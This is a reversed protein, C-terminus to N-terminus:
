TSEQLNRKSFFKRLSGSVRTPSKMRIPADTTTQAKEQLHQLPPPAPIFKYDKAPVAPPREPRTIDLGSRETQKDYRTKDPKLWISPKDAISIDPAPREPKPREPISREPKPQEPKPQEPKPREPIPREPIPKDPKPNDPLPREGRPRREPIPREGKPREGRPKEMKPKEFRPAQMKPNERKPTDVEQMEIKPREAKPAETPPVEPVPVEVLPLESKAKDLKLKSPRLSLPRVEYDSFQPVAPVNAVDDVIVPISEQTRPRTREIRLERPPLGLLEPLRFQLEDEDYPNAISGQLSPSRRAGEEDGDSREEDGCVVIYWRIGEEVQLQDRLKEFWGAKKSGATSPKRGTEDSPGSMPRVTESKMREEYQMMEEMISVSTDVEVVYDAVYAWPGNLLTENSPDYEELLKM